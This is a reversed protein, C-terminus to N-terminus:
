TSHAMGSWEPSSYFAICLAGLSGDITRFEGPKVEGELARRYAEEFEPSYPVGPLYVQPKDKMRFRHYWKGKIRMRSLGPRGMVGVGRGM